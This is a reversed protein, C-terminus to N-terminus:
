DKPPEGHEANSRGSRWFAKVSIRDDELGRDLLASRIVRGVHYESFLYARGAGGPLDVAALANLLGAADSRERDNRCIVAGGVRVEGSDLPALADEPTDVEAVVLARQLGSLSEVMRYAAGLMPTDGVFLHWDADAAVPIKGRPGLLDVEDGPQLGTV